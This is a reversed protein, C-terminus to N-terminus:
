QSGVLRDVIVPCVEHRRDHLQGVALTDMRNIIGDALVGERATHSAHRLASRQDEVSLGATRYRRDIRGSKGVLSRNEEGAGVKQVM